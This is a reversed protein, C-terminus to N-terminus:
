QNSPYSKSTTSVVSLHFTNGLDQLQFEIIFRQNDAFFEQKRAILIDIVERTERRALPDGRKIAENRLQDLMSQREDEPMIALNWALVAINFLRERASHTKIAELYPEVFSELVESMKVEGKPNRVVGAGVGMDQLKQELQDLAQQQAQDAQQLRRLEAFGKSKKAM